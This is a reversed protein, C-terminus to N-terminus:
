GDGDPGTGEDGAPVVDPEPEDAVEFRLTGAADAVTVIVDRAEADDAAGCVFSADPAVVEFGDGGCDVTFDRDYTATLEDLLQEAVVARDVVADLVEVDLTGDDARRVEVRVDGVDDALVARCTVTTGASREIEGPCAVDDVELGLGDAAVEAVAEEAAARDFTAPEDSGCAPLALVVAAAVSATRVFRGRSRPRHTM